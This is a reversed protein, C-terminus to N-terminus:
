ERERDLREAEMRARIDASFEEAAREKAEAEAKVGDLDAVRFINAKNDIM